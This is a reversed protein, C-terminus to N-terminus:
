GFLRGLISRRHLLPPEGRALRKLDEALESATQYRRRPDKELCLLAVKEWDAPITEDLSRPPAPPTSMVLQMTKWPTDALFPPRGTLMEYFIAGLSYVDAAPSLHVEEGRAQEPSMYSPTGVISQMGRQPKDGQRWAAGFDLVFPEGNQEVLINDCKLDRHILGREHAHQVALTVKLLLTLRVPRPLKKEALVKELPPGNVYPFALYAHEEETGAEYVGVINPHNLSRLRAAEEQVGELLKELPPDQPGPYLVKLAIPTQTIPDVAKYVVSIRGRGLERQISFRGFGL